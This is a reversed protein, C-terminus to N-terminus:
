NGVPLAGPLSLIVALTKFHQRDEFAGVNVGMMLADNNDPVKGSDQFITSSIGM